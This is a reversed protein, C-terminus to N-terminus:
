ELGLNKASALSKDNRCTALSRPESSFIELIQKAAHDVNVEMCTCGYGYSGNVNVHEGTDPWDGKAEYGSQMSIVWEGDKDYLSANGPTPNDFWGCRKEKAYAGQSSLLLILTLIPFRAIKM